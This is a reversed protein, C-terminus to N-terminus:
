TQNKLMRQCNVLTCFRRQFKNEVQLCFFITSEKVHFDRHLRKSTKQGQQQQPKTAQAPNVTQNPKKEPSNPKQPQQEQPKQAKKQKAYAYSVQVKDGAIQSHAKM